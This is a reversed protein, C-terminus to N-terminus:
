RRPWRTERGRLRVVCAYVYMICIHVYYNYGLWTLLIMNMDIYYKSYKNPHWKIVIPTILNALELKTYIYIILWHSSLMQSYNTKTAVRLLFCGWSIPPELFPTVHRFNILFLIQWSLNALFPVIVYLLSDWALSLSLSNPLMWSLVPYIIFRALKKKDKIQKHLTM